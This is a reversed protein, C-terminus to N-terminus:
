LDVTSYLITRAAGQNVAAASTGSRIKLHTCGLFRMPDLTISRGAAATVTRETGSDDYLDNFTVGGDMSASFTLNAATWAAPMQIGVLSKKRLDIVGDGVPGGTSTVSAGNAITVSGSDIRVPKGADVDALQAMTLDAISM